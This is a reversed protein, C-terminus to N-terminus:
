KDEEDPSRMEFRILECLGVFGCIGVVTMILVIFGYDL